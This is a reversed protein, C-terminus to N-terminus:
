DHKHTRVAAGLAFPSYAIMAWSYVATLGFLICLLGIMIQVVQPCLRLCLMLLSSFYYYTKAPSTRTSVGGFQSVADFILGTHLSLGAQTTM